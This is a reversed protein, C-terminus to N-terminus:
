RPGLCSRIGFEVFLDVCAPVSRFLFSDFEDTKCVAVGVAINRIRAGTQTVAQQTALRRDRTV